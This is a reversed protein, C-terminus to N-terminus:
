KVEPLHPQQENCDGTNTVLYEMSTYTYFGRGGLGNFNEISAHM